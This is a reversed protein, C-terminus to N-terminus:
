YKWKTRVNPIVDSPIKPKVGHKFEVPEEKLAFDKRLPHGHFDDPLLIRKLDPHGNFHVGFLDFLEREYWDAGPWLDTVTPAVENRACAAVVRIRKLSRPDHLFYYLDLHEVYDVATLDMLVPYETKLEALLDKLHQLSTLLSVQGLYEERKEIKDELM